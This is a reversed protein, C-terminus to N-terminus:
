TGFTWGNPWIVLGLGIGIVSGWIVVDGVVTLPTLLIRGTQGSSDPYVPLQYTVPAHGEVHLMFQHRQRTRTAGLLAGPPPNTPVPTSHTLPIPIMTDALAANVFHPKRRAEIRKRNALLFYARREIVGNKEREEDYRVLVDHRHATRFLQLNPEAAPERFGRLDPSNWLAGTLTYERATECGTMFLLSAVLLGATFQRPLQSFTRMLTIIGEAHPDDLPNGRRVGTVAARVTVDVGRRTLMRRTLSM